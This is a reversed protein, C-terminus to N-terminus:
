TPKPPVVSGFKDTSTSREDVLENRPGYTHKNKEYLILRSTEEIENDSVPAM